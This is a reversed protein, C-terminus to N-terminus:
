YYLLEVDPWNKMDGRWGCLIRGRRYFQMARTPTTPLNPLESYYIWIGYDILDRRMMVRSWNSLNHEDCFRKIAAAGPEALPNVAAVAENWLQYLEGYPRADHLPFLYARLDNAATNRIQVVDERQCSERMAEYSVVVTGQLNPDHGAGCNSLWDIQIIEPGYIQALRVVARDHFDRPKPIMDNVGHVLLPRVVRCV